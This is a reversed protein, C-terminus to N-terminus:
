KTPKKSQLFEPTLADTWRDRHIEEKISEVPRWNAVWNKQEEPLIQTLPDLLPIKDADLIGGKPEGRTSPGGSWQARQNFIITVEPQLFAQEMLPLTAVAALTPQQSASDPYSATIMESPTDKMNLPEPVARYAPRLPELAYPAAKLEAL